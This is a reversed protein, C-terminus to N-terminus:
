TALKLYPTRNNCTTRPTVTVWESRHPSDDVRSDKNYRSDSVEPPRGIRIKPEHDGTNSPAPALDRNEPDTQYAWYFTVSNMNVATVLLKVYHYKDDGELLRLMYCHGGIAEVTRSPAWGDTPAWNKIDFDALQFGIYGYDQIEVGARYCVLRGVDDEFAYYIDTTELSDNQPTNDFSDFDYGSMDPIYTHEDLSVQGEPRPTGSVEYSIDSEEGGQDVAVVVYFFQLGYDTDLDDYCYEYPDPLVRDISGIYTYETEDEAARYIDYVSVDDENNPFWCIRVYGDLNIATVGRPATPPCNGAVPVEVITEKEECSLTFLLISLVSIFFVKKM